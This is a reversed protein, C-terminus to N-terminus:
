KVESSGSESRSDVPEAQVGNRDLDALRRSMRDNDVRLFRQEERLAMLQSELDSAKTEASSNGERALRLEAESADLQRQLTAVDTKLGEIERKQDDISKQRDAIELKLGEQARNADEVALERERITGQLEADRTERESRATAAEDGLEQLRKDRESVTARLEEIGRNADALQSELTSVASELESKVRALEAELENRVRALEDNANTLQTEREALAARTSELDRTAIGLEDTLEVGQAEATTLSASLEDIRQRASTLDEQASTLESTLGAVRAEGDAITRASTERLENFVGQAHEIKGRFDAMLANKEDREQELKMSWSETNQDMEIRLGALEGQLQSNAAVGENIVANLRAEEARFAQASRTAQDRVTAYRETASAREQEKADLLQDVADVQRQKISWIWGVRALDRELERVRDRLFQMKKDLGALNKRPPPPPASRFDVDKVQNFVRHIFVRDEETIEDISPLQTRRQISPPAHGEDAVEVIEPAEYSDVEDVMEMSVASVEDLPLEEPALEEAQEAAADASYDAAAHDDTPETAM